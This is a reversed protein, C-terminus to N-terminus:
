ELGEKEKIDERGRKESRGLQGEGELIGRQERRDRGGGRRGIRQKGERKVGKERLGM